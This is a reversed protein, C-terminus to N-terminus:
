RSSEDVPRDVRRQVTVRRSIWTELASRTRLSQLWKEDGSASGDEGGGTWGGTGGTVTGGSGTGSGDM